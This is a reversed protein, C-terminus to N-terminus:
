KCYTSIDKQIIAIRQNRQADDLYAHEGKADIEMIRVGDQLERLSQQAKACNAQQADAVAQKKAAKDAAEKKELQSKKLEAEREALTKPAAVGSGASDQANAGSNLTKAKAASPPPQDSYHVQGNSDVWKSIAALTNTSTLILLLLLYKHMALM